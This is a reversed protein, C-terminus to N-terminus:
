RRKRPDLRDNSQGPEATVEVRSAACSFRILREPKNAISARSSRKSFVITEKARSPIRGDPRRVPEDEHVGTLDDLHIHGVREEVRWLVPTRLRKETLDNMQRRRFRDPARPRPGTGSASEDFGLHFVGRPASGCRYGWCVTTLPESQATYLSLSISGRAVSIRVGEPPPDFPAPAPNTDGLASTGTISPSTTVAIRTAPRPTPFFAIARSTPPPPSYPGGTDADASRPRRGAPAVPGRPTQRVLPPCSASVSNAPAPSPLATTTCRSSRRAPRRTHPGHLARHGVACARPGGLQGRHPRSRAPRGSASRSRRSAPARDAAHAYPRGTPRPGRSSAGCRRAPTVHAGPRSARPSRQPAETKPPTCASAARRCRARAPRPWSRSLPVARKWGAKPTRDRNPTCGRRGATDRASWPSSRTPRRSRSACRARRAPTRDNAASSCCRRRPHRDSVRTWPVVCSAVAQGSRGRRAARRQVRAPEVSARRACRSRRRTAM